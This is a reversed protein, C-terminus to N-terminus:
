EEVTVMESLRELVLARVLYMRYTMSGVEEILETGSAYGQSAAEGDAKAAMEEQTVSLGEARLVAELALYERVTDSCMLTLQSDYEEKTIGYYVSVFTELDVNYYSQCMSEMYQNYSRREEEILYEPVVPITSTRALEEVIASETNAQFAKEADSEADAKGAEWLEERTMAVGLQALEEDTVEAYQESLAIGNVTVTFVVPAGALSPERYGEPFTLELDVTEGPMVGILGEEFGEIFGGSGIELSQGSATGGPFAVGDKKGMYDINVTDGLEVARKTAFMYRRNIYSEIVDDTVEPRAVHVTMNKYDPLTVYQDIDLDEIPVYDEAAQGGADEAGTAGAQTREEETGATEEQTSKEPVPANGGKSGCASVGSAMAGILAMVILKKKM